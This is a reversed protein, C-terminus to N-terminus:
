IDPPEPQHEWHLAVPFQGRRDGAGPCLQKDLHCSRVGAAHCVTTCGAKLKISDDQEDEKM